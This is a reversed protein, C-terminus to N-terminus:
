MTYIWPAIFNLITWTMLLVILWIITKIIRKKSEEKMSQDMWWMSYMIWNVVIFLVGILWILFTTYRIIWWMIKLVADTWSNITCWTSTCGNIIPSLDVTTGIEVAWVQYISWFLLIFATIFAIIKNKLKM